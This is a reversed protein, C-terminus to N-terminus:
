VHLVPMTINIWAPFYPESNHDFSNGHMQSQSLTHRSWGSMKKSLCSEWSYMKRRFAQEVRILWYIKPHTQHLIQKWLNTFKKGSMEFVCPTGLRDRNFKHYFFDKCRFFKKNQEYYIICKKGKYKSEVVITWGDLVLFHISVYFLEESSALLEVCLIRRRSVSRYCRGRGLCVTVCWRDFRHLFLSLPSCPISEEAMSRTLPSSRCLDWTIKMLKPDRCAKIDKQQGYAKEGCRTAVSWAVKTEHVSRLPFPSLSFLNVREKRSKEKVRRTVLVPGQDLIWTQQHLRKIRHFRINAMSERECICRM